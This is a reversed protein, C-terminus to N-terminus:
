EGPKKRRSEDRDAIRYEAALNRMAALHDDRIARCCVLWLKEM